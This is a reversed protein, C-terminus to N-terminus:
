FKGGEDVRAALIDATHTAIIERPYVDLAADYEKLQKEDLGFAGMHHVICACEVPTLNVSLESMAILASSAGHGPYESKRYVYMIPDSEKITPDVAYCKCKVLDHLMGIRYPSEAREWEVVGANTLRELWLTVNISHELLGGPKSLHHGKSAPADFYGIEELRKEVYSDLLAKELLVEGMGKLTLHVEGM